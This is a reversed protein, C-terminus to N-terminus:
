GGANEGRNQANVIADLKAQVADTDAQNAERLHILQAELLAVHEPTATGARMAEVARGIRRVIEAGATALTIATMPDIM